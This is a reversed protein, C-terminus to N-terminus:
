LERETKDSPQVPDAKKTSEQENKDSTQVLDAQHKSDQESADSAPVPDAKTKSEQETEDSAEVPDTESQSQAFSLGAFRASMGSVGASLGSVGASLYAFYSGEKVLRHSRFKRLSPNKHLLVWLWLRNRLRRHLRRREAKLSVASDEAGAESPRGDAAPIATGCQVEEALLCAAATRFMPHYRSETLRVLSLFSAFVPDWLRESSPLGATDIRFVTSSTTIITVTILRLIAYPFGYIINVISLTSYGLSFQVPRLITGDLQAWWYEFLFSQILLNKIVIIAIVPAMFAFIMESPILNSNWAQALLGLSAVLAFGLMSLKFAFYAISLMVGPVLTAMWPALSEAGYAEGRFEGRVAAKYHQSYGIWAKIIFNLTAWTGLFVSFMMGYPIIQTAWYCSDRVEKLAAGGVNRASMEAQGKSDSLWDASAYGTVRELFEMWLETPVPLGTASLVAALAAIPDDVLNQAMDAVGRAEGDGLMFAARDDAAIFDHIRQLISQMSHAGCVVNVAAQAFLRVVLVTGFVLTPPWVIPLAPRKQQGQRGAAGAPVLAEASTMSRAAGFEDYDDKAPRWALLDRTYRQCAAEIDEYFTHGTLCIELVVLVSWVFVAMSPVLRALEQAHMEETHWATSLYKWYFFGDIFVIFLLWWRPHYINNGLTTCATAMLLWTTGGILGLYVLVPLWGDLGQGFCPAGISAAEVGFVHQLLNEVHAALGPYLSDLDGYFGLGVEHWGLYVEGDHAWITKYSSACMQVKQSVFQLPDTHFVVMALSTLAVPTLHPQRVRSSFMDVGLYAGNHARQGDMSDFIQLLQGFCCWCCCCMGFPGFMGCGIALSHISSVEEFSAEIQIPKGVLMHESSSSPSGPGADRGKLAADPRFVGLGLWWLAVGFLAPLVCLSAFHYRWPVLIAEGNLLGLFKQQFDAIALRSNERLEAARQEALKQCFMGMLRLYVDTASRTAASTLRENYILQYIRALVSAPEVSEFKTVSGSSWAVTLEFVDDDEGASDGNSESNDTTFLPSESRGLQMSRGLKGSSMAHQLAIKAADDANGRYRGEQDKPLASLDMWKVVWQKEDPYERVLCLTSTPKDTVQNWLVALAHLPVYVPHGNVLQPRSDLFLRLKLWYCPIEVSTAGEPLKIDSNPALANVVASMATSTLSDAAQAAALTMNAQDCIGVHGPEDFEPLDGTAKLIETERLIAAFRSRGADIARIAAGAHQTVNRHYGSSQLTTATDLLQADSQSGRAHIATVAEHDVIHAETQPLQDTLAEASDLLQMATVAQQHITGHEGSHLAHHSLTQASDLLQAASQNKGAHIATMAQQAIANHDGNRALQSSLTETSDQSGVDEVGRDLLGAIPSRLAESTWVLALVHWVVSTMGGQLVRPM